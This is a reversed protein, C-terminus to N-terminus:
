KSERGTLTGKVKKPTPPAQVVATQRPLPAPDDIMAMATMQTTEGAPMALLVDSVLSAVLANASSDGAITTADDVTFTRESTLQLPSATAKGRIVVRNVAPDPVSEFGPLARPAMAIVTHIEIGEDHLKHALGDASGVGFGYGLLVFRAEPDQRHIQRIHAEFYPAYFLGGTNVKAFGSEHLTQRLATLGDTAWPDSGNLIFVHVRSREALTTGETPGEPILSDLNAKSCPTVCGVSSVFIAFLVFGRM